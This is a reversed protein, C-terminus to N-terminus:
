GNESLETKLLIAGNNRHRHHPLVGYLLVSTPVSCPMVALLLSHSIAGIGAAEEKHKRETQAGLSTSLAVWM